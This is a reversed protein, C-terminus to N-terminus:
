KTNIFRLDDEIEDPTQEVTSVDLPPSMRVLHIFYAAHAVGNAECLAYCAAIVPDPFQAKTLLEYFSQLDEEKFCQLLIDAPDRESEASQQAIVRIRSRAKDDLWQYTVKALQNVDHETVAPNVSLIYDLRQDSDTEMLAGYHQAARETVTPQPNGLLDPEPLSPPLIPKPQDYLKPDTRDPINKEYLALVESPDITQTTM